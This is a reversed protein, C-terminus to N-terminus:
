RYLRMMIGSMTTIRNIITSLPRVDQQNVLYRMIFTGIVVLPFYRCLILGGRLIWLYRFRNSTYLIHGALPLVRLRDPLDVSDPLTFQNEDLKLIKWINDFGSVVQVHNPRLEIRPVLGGDFYSRDNDMLISRRTVGPIAMSKVMAVLWDANSSFTSQQIQHLGESGSYVYYYIHLIGNARKYAYEPIHIGFIRSLIESTDRLGLTHQMAYMERAITQWIEDRNDGFCVLCLAALCGSSTAYIRGLHVHIGKSKWFQILTGVMLHPRLNLASGHMIIDVNIVM